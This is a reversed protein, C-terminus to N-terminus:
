STMDVPIQERKGRIAALPVICAGNNQVLNHSLYPLDTILLCM